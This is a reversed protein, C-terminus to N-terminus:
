GAHLAARRAGVSASAVDHGTGARSPRRTACRGSFHDAYVVAYDYGQYVAQYHAQAASGTALVVAPVAFAALAVGALRHKLAPVFIEGRVDSSTAGCAATM